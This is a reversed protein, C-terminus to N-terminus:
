HTQVKKDEKQFFIQILTIKAGEKKAIGLKTFIYSKILLFILFLKLKKRKKIM